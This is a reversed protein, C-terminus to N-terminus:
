AFTFKVCVVGRWVTMRAGSLLWVLFSICGVRVSLRRKVNTLLQCLPVAVDSMGSMCVYMYLSIIYYLLYFLHVSVNISLYMTVNLQVFINSMRGPAGIQNAWEM